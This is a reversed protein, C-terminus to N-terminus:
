IGLLSLARWTLNTVGMFVCSLEETVEWGEFELGRFRQSSDPREVEGGERGGHV